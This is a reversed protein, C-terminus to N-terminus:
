FINNVTAMVDLVILISFCSGGVRLMHIWYTAARRDLTVNERYACGM